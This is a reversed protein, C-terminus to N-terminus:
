LGARDALPEAKAGLLNAGWVEHVIADLLEGLYVEKSAELRLRDLQDGLNRGFLAMREARLDELVSVSPSLNYRIRSPLTRM